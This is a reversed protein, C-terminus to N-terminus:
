QSYRSVSSVTSLHREVEVQAQAHHQEGPGRDERTPARDLFPDLSSDAYSRPRPGVTHDSGSGEDDDAYSARAAAASGKLSVPASIEAVEIYQARAKRKRLMVVALAIVLAFLAISLIIVVVLLSHAYPALQTNTISSSSEVSPTPSASASSSESSAENTPSASITSTDTTFPMTATSSLFASTGSSTEATAISSSQPPGPGFGAFGRTPGTAISSSREPEFGPSTATDSASSSEARPLAPARNTLDAPTTPSAIISAVRAYARVLKLPRNVGHKADDEGELSSPCLPQMCSTPRTVRDANVTVSEVHRSRHEELAPIHAARIVGLLCFLVVCRRYIMVMHMGNARLSSLFLVVSLPHIPLSLPRTQKGPVLASAYIRESLTATCCVFQFVSSRVAFHARPSLRDWLAMHAQGQPADM